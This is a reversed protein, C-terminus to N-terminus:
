IRSRQISMTELILMLNKLVKGFSPNRHALEEYNSREVLNEKKM